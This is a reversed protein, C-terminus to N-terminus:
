NETKSELMFDTSSWKWTSKWSVILSDKASFNLLMGNTSSRIRVVTLYARKCISCLCTNNTKNSFYPMRALYLFNPWGQFKFTHALWRNLLIPTYLFICITRSNNWLWQGSQWDCLSSSYSLWHHLREFIFQHLAM